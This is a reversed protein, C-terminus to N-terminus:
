AIWRLRVGGSMGNGGITGPGADGGGFGEVSDGVLFTRQDNMNMTMRAPSGAGGFFQNTNYTGSVDLLSAPPVITRYNGLFWLGETGRAVLVGRSNFALKAKGTISVGTLETTWNVGDTSSSIGGSGNSYIKGDFTNLAVDSMGTAPSTRETWTTGNASTYYFAGACIYFFGNIFNVSDISRSTLSFTNTNWSTGNTSSYASTGSTRAVVFTGNGFAIGAAAFTEPFNSRETWNAPNGESGANCTWYVNANTSHVGVNVTGNSAVGSCLYEASGGTSDTRMRCLGVNYSYFGPSYATNNNTGSVRGYVVPGLDNTTNGQGTGMGRTYTAGQLNSNQYNVGAVQFWSNPSRHMDDPSQYFGYISGPNDSGLDGIIADASARGNAFFRTRTPMLPNFRKTTTAILGSGAYSNFQFTTGGMNFGVRGGPCFAVVQSTNITTNGGAAGIAINLTPTNEVNLIGKVVGAGNQTNNGSVALVEITKVGLPVTFTGSSTIFEEYQQPTNTIVPYVQLPM